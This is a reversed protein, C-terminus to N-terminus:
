CITCSAPAQGPMATPVTTTGGATPGVTVGTPAASPNLAAINQSMLVHQLTAPNPAVGSLQGPQLPLMAASVADLLFTHPIQNYCFRLCCFLLYFHNNFLLLLYFSKTGMTAKPATPMAGMTTTTVGASMQQGAASAGAQGGPRGQVRPLKIFKLTLRTM